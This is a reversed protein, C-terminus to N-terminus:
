PLPNFDLYKPSPGCMESSSFFCKHITVIDGAGRVAPGRHGTTRLAAALPVHLTSVRLACGQMGGPDAPAAARPVTDRLADGNIHPDGGGHMDCGHAVNDAADAAESEGQAM